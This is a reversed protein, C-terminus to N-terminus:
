FMGFYKTFKKSCLGMFAFKQFMVFNNCDKAYQMISRYFKYEEENSPERISEFDTEITPDDGRFQRMKRIKAM